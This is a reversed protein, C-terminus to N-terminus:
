FQTTQIPNSIQNIFGETTNAPIPKPNGDEDTLGDVYYNYIFRGNFDKIPEGRENEAREVKTVIFKNEGVLGGGQQYVPVKIVINTPATTKYQTDGNNYTIVDGLENELQKIASRNNMSVETSVDQSTIEGNMAKQSNSETIKNFMQNNFSPSTSKFKITFGQSSEMFSKLNEETDGDLEEGMYMEYDQALKEMSAADTPDYGGMIQQTSIGSASWEGKSTMTVPLNGPAKKANEAVVAHLFRSVKPNKIIQGNQDYVESDNPNSINENFLFGLETDDLNVVVGPHTVIGSQYTQVINNSYADDYSEKKSYIENIGKFSHEKLYRKVAVPNNVDLGLPVDQGMSNFYNKVKNPNWVERDSIPEGTKPNIQISYFDDVTTTANRIQGVLNGDANMSLMDVYFQSDEKNGTTKLSTFESFRPDNELNRKDFANLEGREYKALQSLFRTAEQPNNKIYELTNYKTETEDTYGTDTRFSDEIDLSQAKWHAYDSSTNRYGEQITKINYGGINTLGWAELDAPLAHKFAQLAGQLGGKEAIFREPFIDALVEEYKIKKEGLNGTISNVENGSMTNAPVVDSDASLLTHIQDAANKERVDQPKYSIGEDSKGHALNEATKILGREISAKAKQMDEGSKLHGAQVMANLERQVDAYLESGEDAMLDKVFAAYKSAPVGHWESWQILDPDNLNYSKSGSDKIMNVKPLMYATRDFYEGVGVNKPIYQGTPDNAAKRIEEDLAFRLTPDKEWDKNNALTSYIDTFAKKREEYAANKQQHLKLDRNLKIIGDAIEGSAAKMIFDDSLMADVQGQLNQASKQSNERDRLLLDESNQVYTSITSDDSYYGKGYRGMNLSSEGTVQPDINLGAKFSDIQADKQALNQQMLQFPMKLPVYQSAYQSQGRRFYRNLAM